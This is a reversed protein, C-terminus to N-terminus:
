NLKKIEIKYSKNLDIKLSQLYNILSNNFNNLHVKYHSDKEFSLIFRFNNNFLPILLNIFYIINTLIQYNLKIHNFDYQYSIMNLDFDKNVLILEDIKLFQSRIVNEAKILDDIVDFNCELFMHDEQIINSKKKSIIIKNSNKSIVRGEEGNM